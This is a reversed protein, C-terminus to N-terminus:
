NVGTMRAGDATTSSTLLRATSGGKKQGDPLNGIRPFNNKQLLKLTIQKTWGQKFFYVEERSVWIVGVVRAM